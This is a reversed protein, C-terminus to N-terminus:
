PYNARRADKSSSSSAGTGRQQRAAAARLPVLPDLHQTQLTAPAARVGAVALLTPTPTRHRGGCSLPSRPTPEGTAHHAVPARPPRTSYCVSLNLRSVLSLSDVQSLSSMGLLATVFPHMRAVLLVLPERQRCASLLLM